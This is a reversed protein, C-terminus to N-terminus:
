GASPPDAVRNLIWGFLFEEKAPNSACQRMYDCAQQANLLALLVRAGSVKGRVLIFAALANLTKEGIQGDEVQDPYLVGRRNLANLARQLFLAAAPYWLNFHTDFVEAAVEPCIASMSDLRLPDWYARKAIATAVEVPLDKMDGVYGFRRAVAETIGHNTPGGPDNPDNSYGREASLTRAWAAAFYDTPM